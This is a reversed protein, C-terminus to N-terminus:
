SLGELSRIAMVENGRPDIVKVAVRKHGGPEFPISITGDYAAFAEADAASGLAKVIKDWAKQNPFFAQTVCFCRGDYDSDLFWAAVKDAGSSTIEGTIPSYIDVGLLEVEIEIRDLVNITRVEIEPQGFVTFLQSKPSDILLGDMGPSADPRIHAMHIKLRPNASEQIVAQAAGDFSFGAIVLEDYRRSARILDEIQEATVPGHQPGFAIAVNCPEDNEGGEWLAEAHLASDASELRDISEFNRHRNNPFTVGDKQILALMRDIYASANQAYEAAADKVEWSNPTPDFMEGNENLSLEEPRVGEVTFPGSVRVVDKIVEPRDVLEEQEANTNICATVEAMKVRYADRYKAVAEVLSSPWDTDPDFPVHWHEFVGAPPIMEAYQAVHRAKLRSKGTFAAQILEIKTGPLLMRRCDSDTVARLGEEQLKTALKVVLHKRLGDAVDYLASNIANLLEDLTSQHKALLPDLDENRAISGLTVHPVSQYVFNAAPDVAKGAKNKESTSEGRVRYRNFKSTLLRQRALSLSVRSSDITIWRRGWNEAVVATTGSGCTPDLVMDGPDTTMLMCRQIVKQGTQVVYIQEETFSGTGTDMWVNDLYSVPNDNALLVTRISKGSRRLRGASYLRDMAGGPEPDYSWHRTNKISVMEGEFSRAQSRSEQYGSSTSPGLTCVQWGTPLLSPDAIEEDTMPRLETMDPSVAKIYQAAGREGPVKPIALKRFKIQEIDKAYHLIYDISTPLGAASASSTKYFAIMSCYNKAEFVEDIVQRVLHVNQDSIQVFLSGTDALLDRTVILRDRLYSLYSHVGLNWTDRYARVMEPERSLDAERDGVDRSGVEPQFNSAFRIGYPPDIYAMQVKGALGERKSLSSMVELSDGLILRNAWDIDHQYFQVAEKYEQQPDAFLDAQVDERKAARIIANASVREHIHLAVPEVQLSNSDHEEKKGSWELWPQRANTAIERLTEAEDNSLKNGNTAKDVTEAFRDSRGSTDFRLEPSLHPSYSYQAKEVKPIKGEGAMKATPINKRKASEHKYAEVAIKKKTKKKRAM